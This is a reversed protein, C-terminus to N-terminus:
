GVPWPDLTADAPSRAGEVMVRWARITRLRLARTQLQVYTPRVGFYRQVAPILGDPGATPSGDAPDATSGTVRQRLQQRLSSINNSAWLVGAYSSEVSGLRSCHRATTYMMLAECCAASLAHHVSPRCATGIAGASGDIRSALALVTSVGNVSGSLQYTEIRVGWRDAVKGVASPVGSTIQVLTGDNADFFGVVADREVIELLGHRLVAATDAAPGACFGTADLRRQGSPCAIVGRPAHSVLDREVLPEGSALWEVAAWREALESKCRAVTLKEDLGVSSAGFRTQSTSTSLVVEVDAFYVGHKRSFPVVTVAADIAEDTVQATKSGVADPMTM